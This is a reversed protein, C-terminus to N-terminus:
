EKIDLVKILDRLWYASFKISVEKTNVFYITVMPNDKDGLDITILIRLSVTYKNKIEKSNFKTKYGEFTFKNSVKPLINHLKRIEKVTLEGVAVFHGDDEACLYIKNNHEVLAHVGYFQRPRGDYTTTGITTRQKNGFMEDDAQIIDLKTKM